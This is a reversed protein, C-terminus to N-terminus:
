VHQNKPLSNDRFFILWHPHDVERNFFDENQIFRVCFDKTQGQITNTKGGFGHICRAHVWQLEDRIIYTISTLNQKEIKLFIFDIAFENTM